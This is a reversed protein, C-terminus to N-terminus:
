SDAAQAMQLATSDAAFRRITPEASRCGCVLLPFGIEQDVGGGGPAMQKISGPFVVCSSDLAGNAPRLELLPGIPRLSERGGATSYCLLRAGSDLEHALPPATRVISQLSTRFTADLPSFAARPEASSSKDDLWFLPARCVVHRRIRPAPRPSLCTVNNKFVIDDAPARAAAAAAAAASTSAQLRYRSRSLSTSALPSFKSCNGAMLLPPRELISFNHRARASSGSKHRM